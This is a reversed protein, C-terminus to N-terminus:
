VVIHTHKKTSSMSKIHQIEDQQKTYAKMQNVENESKTRVYTTYNGGYYVLKKQLSLDMMNTCVNDMFDQSHSLTNWIIMLQCM